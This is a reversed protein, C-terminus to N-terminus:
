SYYGSVQVSFDLNIYNGATMDIGDLGYNHYLYLNLTNNSIEYSFQHVTNKIMFDSGMGETVIVSSKAYNGYKGNPISKVPLPIAYKYVHMEGNEGYTIDMKDNGATVSITGANTPKNQITFEKPNISVQFHGSYQYKETGYQIVSWNVSSGANGVSVPVDTTTIVLGSLIEEKWHTYLDKGDPFYVARALTKLIFPRISEDTKNRFIMFGTKLNKM